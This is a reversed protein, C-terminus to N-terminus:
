SVLCSKHAGPKTPAAGAPFAQALADAFAAARAASGPSGYHIGDPTFWAPQAMSAWDFVRMDPYAPCAAMLDANWQQMNTEAWPGSSLQTVVNVWLVPQNGLVSMLGSIRSSMSVSSGVAVDAADNTGLAILWCGHYGQSLVQQAVQVGNPEGQYTENLSRAGSIELNVNVVGVRELQAPLQQPPDLYDNLILSESTSDGIVVVSTCSTAAATATTTTTSGPRGAGGRTGTGPRTGATTTTAGRPPAHLHLSIAAASQTSPARSAGAVLVGPAVTPLAGGIGLGTVALATVAVATVAGSPRHRESGWERVAVRRWWRSLAGRRIPTEIFYWSAAAVVITAGVQLIARGLDVGRSVTPSTLVIIPYHWLYIGYSILGIWRLPGWGLVTGVRSAPHAAAAVVCMTSLSLLVMGGHYLFPSYESTRWVLLGIGLLGIVGVADILRRAGITVRPSLARSPWVMALAAGFLLGFARTDTGDYVRTPDLTPHYLLAMEIASLVALFVTAGALLNLLRRRGRRDRNWRRLCWLGALLLWPWILYFQEEVALSWLHGLPSPPGFRAFYTVHQFILWWNSIYLASAGVDGRLSGLQARDGIAVWVAVVALMVFLAPLLRRARRLWFDGLAIRGQGRWEGLLLDTILYGSLTFFVGVGLLGGVAWGAGLHFAVVALVAIARLGDLGPMYRQDRGLPKPM